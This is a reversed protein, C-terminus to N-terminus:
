AKCYRDIAKEIMRMEPMRDIYPVFGGRANFQEDGFFYRYTELKDKSSDLYVLTYGDKHEKIDVVLWAHSSIGPHQLRLYVIRQKHEVEEFIQRMRRKLVFPEVRSRGALGRTLWDGGFVGEEIQWAEMRQVIEPWWDKSFDYWSEYGPIEIVERSSFWEGKTLKRIIKRAESKTPRDHEPLYVTLYIANRQLRSHWWCLGGNALGEAPNLFAMRNAREYILDKFYNLDSAQECFEEASQSAVEANLGTGLVCFIFALLSWRRCSRM